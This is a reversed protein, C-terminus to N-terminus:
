KFSWSDSNLVLESVRIQLDSVRSEKGPVIAFAAIAVSVAALVVPVRAVFGVAGLVLRLSRRAVVLVPVAALPVYGALLVVALPFFATTFIVATVPLLLIALSTAIAVAFLSSLTLNQLDLQVVM